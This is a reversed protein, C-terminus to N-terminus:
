NWFRSGVLNPDAKYFWFFLISFLSLLAFLTDLIKYIDLYQNNWVTVPAFDCILIFVSYSICILSLYKLRAFNEQVIRNHVLNSSM